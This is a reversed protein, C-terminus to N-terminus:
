QEDDVPQKNDFLELYIQERTCRDIVQRLISKDVIDSNLIEKIAILSKFESKNAALLYKYLIDTPASIVSENLAKCLDKTCKIMDREYAQKCGMEFYSVMDERLGATLMCKYLYHQFFVILYNSRYSPRLFSIDKDAKGSAILKQYAQYLNEFWSEELDNSLLISICHSIDLPEVELRKICAFLEERRLRKYIDEIDNTIKDNTEQVTQSLKIIGQEKTTVTKEIIQVKKYLANIYRGIVFGIITLLLSIVAISISFVTLYNNASAIENSIFGNSTDILTHLSEVNHQIQDIRVSDIAHCTAIDSNFLSVM